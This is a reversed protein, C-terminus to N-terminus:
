MSREVILDIGTGLADALVVQGRKVPLQLELKHILALLEPIRERPFSGRTRLPVRRPGPLGGAKLSGEGACRAVGEATAEGAVAAGAKARCTSTVVRRPSLMEERAYQEGRACRNGTVAIENGSLREIQLHCGMPCTICIMENM